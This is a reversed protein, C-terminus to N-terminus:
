GVSATRPLEVRMRAARAPAAIFADALTLLVVAIPWALGAYWREPVLVAVVLAVPVGAAAALIATRTPHIM